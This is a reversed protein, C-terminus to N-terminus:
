TPRRCTFTGAGSSGRVAASGPTTSVSSVSRRWARSVAASGPRASDRAANVGGPSLVEVVIEPAITYHGKADLAQARRQHSIWVLDPIAVDDESFVLGPAAVTLGIGTLMDWAHLDSTLVTCVYQHREGPARSVYLEGAIIEYRVGEIEPLRDLDATTFGFAVTM